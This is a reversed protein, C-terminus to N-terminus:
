KSTRWISLYTGCFGGLAAPILMTHDNVYAITPFAGFVIIGMTWIGAVFPRSATVAKTYEAWVIDVLVMFVFVLAYKM